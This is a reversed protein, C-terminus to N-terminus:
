QSNAHAHEFLPATKPKKAKQAHKAGARIKEHETLFRMM